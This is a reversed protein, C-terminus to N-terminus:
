PSEAMQQEEVALKVLQAFSDAELKRMISRRRDEVTRVSVALEQATAKNSKGSVILELVEREPPTLHNFRGEVEDRRAKSRRNDADQKLADQIADWIDQGRCPKKLVTTAGAKMADVADPVEIYGSVLIVPLAHGRRALEEQLQLGSMGVMRMDAVLCGPSSPDFAELFEEASAYGECKMSMSAVLARVSERADEEDDVVYVIPVADM